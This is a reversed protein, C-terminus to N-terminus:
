EVSVVVSPVSSCRQQAFAEASFQGIWSTDSMSHSLHSLSFSFDSRFLSFTKWIKPPIKTFILAGVFVSDIVEEEAEWIHPLVNWCIVWDIAEEEAEMVVVGGASSALRSSYHSDERFCAHLQKPAGYLATFFSPLERRLDACTAAPFGVVDFFSSSKM